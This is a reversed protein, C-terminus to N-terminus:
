RPLFMGVGHVGFGAVAVLPQGATLARPAGPATLTARRTRRAPRPFGGLAIEAPRGPGVRAFRPRLSRSSRGPQDEYLQGPHRATRGPSSLASVHAPPGKLHLSRSVGSSVPVNSVETFPGSPRGENPPSAQSHTSQRRWSSCTRRSRPRIKLATCSPSQGCALFRCFSISRLQDCCGARQSFLLLPKRLEAPLDLSTRAHDRVM